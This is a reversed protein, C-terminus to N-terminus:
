TASGFKADLLTGWAILAKFITWSHGFVNRVLNRPGDDLSSRTSTEVELADGRKLDYVLMQQSDKSLM